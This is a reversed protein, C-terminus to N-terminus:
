PRDAALAPQPFTAAIVGIGISLAATAFVATLLAVVIRKM